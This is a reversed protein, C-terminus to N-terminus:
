KGAGRQSPSLGGCDRCVRESACRSFLERGPTPHLKASGLAHITTAPLLAPRGPRAHRLSAEQTAHAHRRWLVPQRRHGSVALRSQMASWSDVRRQALRARRRYRADEPKGRFDPHGVCARGSRLGCRGSETCRAGPDVLVRGDCASPEFAGSKEDQSNNKQASLTRMADALVRILRPVPSRVSRASTGFEYLDM